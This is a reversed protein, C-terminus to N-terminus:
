AVTMSMRRPMMMWDPLSADFAIASCM